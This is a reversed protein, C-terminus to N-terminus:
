RKGRESEEHKKGQEIAIEGATGRAASEAADEGRYLEHVVLLLLGNWADPKSIFTGVFFSALMYAITRAMM